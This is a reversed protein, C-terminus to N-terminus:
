PVVKCQALFCGQIWGLVLRAQGLRHEWVGHGLGM